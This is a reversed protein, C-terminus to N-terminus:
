RPRILAKLKTLELMKQNNNPKIQTVLDTFYSSSLLVYAKVIQELFLAVM